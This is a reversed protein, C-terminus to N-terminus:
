VSAECYIVNCLKTFHVLIGRLSLRDMGTECNLGTYGKICTCMYGNVKDICTGGNQCPKKECDDIDSIFHNM